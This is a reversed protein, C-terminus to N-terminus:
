SSGVITFPASVLHGALASLRYNGPRLTRGDIRGSFVFHNSGEVGSQTFAGKVPTYFACRRHDGAGRSRRKCTNGFKHGRVKRSVSFEVTAPGTLTYTVEAGTPPKSKLIGTAVPGGSRGARFKRPKISVSSV